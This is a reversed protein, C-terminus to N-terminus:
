SLDVSKGDQWSEFLKDLRETVNPILVKPVSILERAREVLELEERSKEQWDKLYTEQIKLFASVVVYADDLYGFLGLEEEALYDHPHYIYAIINSSFRRLERPAKKDNWYASLYRLVPPLLFIFEKTAKVQEETLSGKIRSKLVARFEEEGEDALQRLQYALVELM